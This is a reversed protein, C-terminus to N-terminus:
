SGLRFLRYGNEYLARPDCGIANAVIFLNKISMVRENTAWLSVQRFDFGTKDALHQQTWGKEDLRENLLCRGVIGTM